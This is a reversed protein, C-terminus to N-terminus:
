NQYGKLWNQHAIVEALIVQNALVTKGMSVKHFLMGHAFASIKSFFWGQGSRDQVSALLQPVLTDGGCGKPADFANAVSEQIWVDGAKLSM